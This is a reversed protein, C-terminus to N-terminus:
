APSWTRRVGHPRNSVFPVFPVFSVFAVFAVFAVFSERTTGTGRMGHLFLNDGCTKQPPPCGLIGTAIGANARFSLLPSAVFSDKTDKTYTTDKTDFGGCLRRRM